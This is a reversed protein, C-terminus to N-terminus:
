SWRSRWRASSELWNRTRRCVRLSRGACGSSKGWKAARAQGSRLWRVDQAPHWQNSHWGTRYVLSWRVGPAVPQQALWHSVGTVMSRRTGSTATGVLASWRRTGSTATGVLAICWRSGFAPHWQDSHWGTRYVLSWRVGRAVPQQALWHSVGTVMSRRTGSTATGVLASWRRTGSTATGVLAFRREGRGSRWCGRRRRCM